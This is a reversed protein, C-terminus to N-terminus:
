PLPCETVRLNAESQLLFCPGLPLSLPTPPKRSTLGCAQPHPPSGHPVMVPLLPVLFDRSSRQGDGRLLECTVAEDGVHHHQPPSTPSFLKHQHLGLCPIQARRSPLLSAGTKALQPCTFAATQLGPLPRALCWLQQPRWRPRGAEPVLPFYVCGLAGGSGYYAARASQSAPPRSCTKLLASKLQTKFSPSLRWPCLRICKFCLSVTGPPPKEAGGGWEGSASLPDM